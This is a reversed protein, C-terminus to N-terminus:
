ADGAKAKANAVNAIEHLWAAHRPAKKTESWEDLMPRSVRKLEAYQDSTGIDAALEVRHCPSVTVM